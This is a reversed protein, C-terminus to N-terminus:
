VGQVSTNEHGTSCKIGGSERLPTTLAWLGRQRAPHRPEQAALRSHEMGPAWCETVGARVSNCLPDVLQLPFPQVSATAAILSHSFFCLFCSHMVYCRQPRTALQTQAIKKDEAGDKGRRQYAMLWPPQQLAAGLDGANLPLASCPTPLLAAHIGALRASLFVCATIVVSYGSEKTVRPFVCVCM